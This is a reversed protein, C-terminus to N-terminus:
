VNIHHTFVGDLLSIMEEKTLIGISAHVLEGNKYFVLFPIESSGSIGPLSRIAKSEPNDFEMDFFKVHAYTAELEEIMRFVAVCKHDMRGCIVIVNENEHIARAHERSNELHKLNTYLM